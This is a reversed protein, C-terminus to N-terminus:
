SLNQFCDSEMGNWYRLTMTINNTNIHPKFWANKICCHYCLAPVSRHFLFTPKDSSQKYWSQIEYDNLGAM